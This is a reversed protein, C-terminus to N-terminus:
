MNRLKILIECAPAQYYRGKTEHYEDQLRQQYARLAPEATGQEAMCLTAAVQEIKEAIIQAKIDDVDSARAAATFILLVATLLLIEGFVVLVLTGAVKHRWRDSELGYNVNPTGDSNQYFPIKFLAPVLWGLLKDLM